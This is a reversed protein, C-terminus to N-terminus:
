EDLRKTKRLLMGIINYWQYLLLVRLSYLLFRGISYTLVVMMHSRNRMSLLRVKTKNEETEEATKYTARVKDLASDDIREVTYEKYLGQKTEIVAVPLSNTVPNRLIQSNSL